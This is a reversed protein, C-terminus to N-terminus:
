YKEINELCSMLTGKVNMQKLCDRLYMKFFRIYPDICVIHQKDGLRMHGFSMGVSVIFV